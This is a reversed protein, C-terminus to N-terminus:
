ASVMDTQDETKSQNKSLSSIEFTKSKQELTDRYIQSFSALLLVM